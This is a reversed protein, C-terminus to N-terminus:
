HCLVNAAWAAMLLDPKTRAVFGLSEAYGVAASILKHSAFSEDSNYDMDIQKVEVHCEDKLHLALEIARETENWLRTWIDTIKAVKERTYLVHAGQNPFRFVITSVYVTVRPYNQSDCGVYIEVEPNKLLYDRVYNNLDVKSGDSMKAFRDRMAFLTNATTLFFVGSLSHWLPLV